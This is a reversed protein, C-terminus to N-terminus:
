AEGRHRAGVGGVVELVGGPRPQRRDGNFGQTAVQFQQRNFGIADLHQLTVAALPDHPHPHVAAEGTGYRHRDLVLHECVAAVSVAALPIGGLGVTVGGIELRDAAQQRDGGGGCESGEAELDIAITARFLPAFGEPDPQAVRHVREDGAAGVFQHNGDLLFGAVTSRLGRHIELRGCCRAELGEGGSQARAKLNEPIHFIEAGGGASLGGDPLGEARLNPEGAILNGIGAVAEEAAGFPEYRGGTSALPQM